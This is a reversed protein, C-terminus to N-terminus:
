SQSHRIIGRVPFERGDLILTGSVQYLAEVPLMPGEGEGSELLPNVAVLTGRIGATASEIEWAMPVDRRAPEFARVDSWTVRLDEWQRNTFGVRGWGRFPRSGSTDEEWPGAELVVQLADGSILFGWDGPQPDEATWARSLDLVFGPVEGSALLTAGEHIRFTQARPGTWEALLDGLAVELRRPGQQFYIREIADGSGV